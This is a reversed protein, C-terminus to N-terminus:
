NEKELCRLVLTLMDHLMKQFAALAANDSGFTIQNTINNPM